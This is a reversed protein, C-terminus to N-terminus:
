RTNKGHKFIRKFPAAAAEREQENMGVLWMSAAYVLTYILIGLLLRWITKMPFFLTLLIGVAAPPILGVSVRLINKWFALIDIGCKKHYYINMVLGNAFLLSLATGVAAGVAGYRPALFITLGLNVFAMGTYVISRFQHKNLARQVQIGVNQTLPVIAPVALLLVVYYASDYGEGAWLGIFQRGFFILGTAVLALILFQIRGVKVFLDTLGANRATDGEGAEVQKHIRPTYVGSVATSMMSYYNYLSFGVSYVAVTATGCFRGLLFKDINLNIQDVVLNLAIFATYVFLSKFLGKEFGRFVFRNKLVFVTYLVFIVDAICSITLSITAMAVSGYGALLLPLTVLPGLVTKVAGLLKLFVFREHATIISGFVSAPFSVALSVTLIRMLIKATGYEAETLGDAFVLTLNESLFWGCLFAVLGIVSFIILFLGNLKDISERDDEKKYRAYYRIYGSNFGLSLLSLIAVTSSVTNYLGYESQGLLRLMVPTYVLGILISLAMQLYSLLVGMKLQNVKM